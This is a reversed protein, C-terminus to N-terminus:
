AGHSLFPQLRSLGLINPVSILFTPGSDSQYVGDLYRAMEGTIMADMSQVQEPRIRRQGVVKDVCLAFEIEDARVVVFQSIEELARLPLDLDASIDLVALVQGRLNILGRLSPDVMFLPTVEYNEIVEVVPEIPIGLVTSGISACLYGHSAGDAVEEVVGGVQGDERLVHQDGFRERVMRILAAASLVILSNNRFGLVTEVIHERDDTAVLAKGPGPQLSVADAPDTEEPNEATAKDPRLQVVTIYRDIALACYVGDQQIVVVTKVPRDPDPGLSTSLTTADLVPLLYERHVMNGLTGRMTGHFPLLAPVEVIELVSGVPLAYQFGRHAYVFHKLEQTM